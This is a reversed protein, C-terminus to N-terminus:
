QCVNASGTVPASGGTRYNNVLAHLVDRGLTACHYQSPTFGGALENIRAEDFAAIEELSLGKIAVTLLSATALSAACGYALFTCDEIREHQMRAFLHIQDGCVPNGVFATVDPNPLEGANQPDTFHTVIQPSYTSM